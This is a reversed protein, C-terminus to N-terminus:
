TRAQEVLALALEPTPPFTVDPPVRVQARRAQDAAWTEPLSLPATRPGPVPASSTPEEAVDHARV